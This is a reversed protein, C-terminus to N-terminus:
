TVPPYQLVRYHQVVLYLAIASVHHWVVHGHLWAHQPDCAVRMLDVLSALQAVVLLAVAGRLRSADAACEVSSRARAAWETALVAVVAAAVLWQFKIHTRYMVHVLAMGLVQLVIWMRTQRERAIIGVRRLNMALLWFCFCFMGHFDLAQTLYNNSAHFAASSVGVWLLLPGM